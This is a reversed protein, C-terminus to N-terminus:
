EIREVCVPGEDDLPRPEADGAVVALDEVLSAACGTCAAACAVHDAPLAEASGDGHLATICAACELTCTLHSPLTGMVAPLDLGAGCGSLALLAVVIIFHKM